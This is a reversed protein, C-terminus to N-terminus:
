TLNFASLGIFLCIQAILGVMLRSTPPSTDKAGEVKGEKVYVESQTSKMYTDMVGQNEAIVVTVADRLEM